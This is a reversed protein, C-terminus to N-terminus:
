QKTLTADFTFVDSEYNTIDTQEFHLTLQNNGLTGTLSTSRGWRAVILSLHPKENCERNQRVLGM